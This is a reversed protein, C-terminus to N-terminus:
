MAIETIELFETDTNQSIYRRVEKSGASKRLLIHLYPRTPLDAIHCDSTQVLIWVPLSALGVSGAMYRFLVAPVSLHPLGM